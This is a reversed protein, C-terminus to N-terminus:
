VGPIPVRIMSNLINRGTASRGGASGGQTFVKDGWKARMRAVGAREVALTRM